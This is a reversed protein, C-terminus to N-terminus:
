FFDGYILTANGKLPELSVPAKGNLSKDDASGMLPIVAM